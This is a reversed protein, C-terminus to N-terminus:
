RKQLYPGIPHTYENFHHGFREGYGDEPESCLINPSQLISLDVFIPSQTLLTKNESLLYSKKGRHNRTSEYSAVAFLFLDEQSIKEVGDSFRIRNNYFNTTKYEQLLKRVINVNGRYDRDAINKTLKTAEELLTYVFTECQPSYSHSKKYLDLVHESEEILDDLSSEFTNRCDRTVIIRKTETLTNLARIQGYVSRLLVPINEFYGKEEKLFDSLEHLVNLPNLLVSQSVFCVNNHPNFSDAFSKLTTSKNIPSYTLTHGAKKKLESGCLM